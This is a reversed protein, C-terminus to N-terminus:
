KVLSGNARLLETEAVKLNYLANIYRSQSDELSKQAEITEIFNAKGLKYRELFIGVIEQLMQMNKFEFDAIKKNLIFTQTQLYVLTNVQITNQETTLRQNLFTLNREEVLKKNRNGNFILWNFVLGANLGNQRNLFVFGAESQNRTFNYATNLQIQPLNIAKAEKVSQELALENQKSILISKNNITAPKVEDLVQNYNITITDTVDYDLQMKSNILTNLDSKLQLLQVSLQMVDSRSKNENSQALLYDIKSDSGIDYRLKALKNREEFLKLNQESAKILSKVKILHNYTVIIQYVLNEMQQKLLISSAQENYEFRKKVAFMRMGDFVLWNANISAGLNKSIAGNREQKTGNLFEQYSNLSSFNYNGGLSVTPSLGANGLNNQTQIIKNQNKAILLAYNKELGLKIAEDLTLVSQAQIISWNLLFLFSLKNLYRM